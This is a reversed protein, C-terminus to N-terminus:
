EGTNYIKFKKEEVYEQFKGELVNILETEKKTELDVYKIIRAFPALPIKKLAINVVLSFAGLCWATIQMGRSLPAAGLIKTFLPNESFDIMSQQVALEFVFVVWFM